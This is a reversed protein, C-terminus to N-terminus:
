RALYPGSYMTEIMDLEAILGMTKDNTWNPLRPHCSCCLLLRIHAHHSPPAVASPPSPILSSSLHPQPRPPLASYLSFRHTSVLSLAFPNSLQWPAQARGETASWLVIIPTGSTVEKWMYNLYILNLGKAEM